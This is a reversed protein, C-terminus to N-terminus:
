LPRISAIADAYNASSFIYNGAVLIDAGADWLVPATDHNVGGDVEILAESGCKRIMDKIRRVKDVCEPIFAQGGFGPNVSMVLILDTMRMIESLASVPTAPNLSVGAKVGKQRIMDLLRHLHVTAETHATLIDAGADIFLNIYQEPNTIMLHVDLPLSTVKRIQKVIMPGFTINPVFHGDMIDLHLMNAGADEVAEIEESLKMFDASLLSISIM